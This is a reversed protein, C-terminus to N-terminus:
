TGRTWPTVAMCGGGASNRPSGPKSRSLIQSGASPWIPWAWTPPSPRSGSPAGALSTILGYQDLRALLASSNERGIRDWRVSVTERTLPPNDVLLAYFEAEQSTLGLAILDTTM